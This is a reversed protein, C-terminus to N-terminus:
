CPHGTLCAWFAFYFVWGAPTLGENGVELSNLDNWAGPKAFQTILVLQNIIRHLSVFSPPPGISARHIQILCMGM